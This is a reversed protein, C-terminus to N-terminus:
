FTQLAATREPWGLTSFPWLASSFWTDLVDEEQRLDAGGCHACRTPDEAAVTWEGCAGCKWAPIRHGWWLQRSIAWDRINEMWHFYTNEWSKPHFVVRGDRVADLAPKALPAMRMFWQESLLPQVLTDCRDCHPVEHPHDKVGALLGAAELDAVVLLGRRSGREHGEPGLPGIPCPDDGDPEFASGSLHGGDDPREVLRRHDDLVHLQVGGAEVVHEGLGGPAAELTGAVGSIGVDAGVCQALDERPRELRIFVWGGM